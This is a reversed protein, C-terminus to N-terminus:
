VSRPDILLARDRMARGEDGRGDVLALFEGFHTLGPGNSPDLELGKRYDVEAQAEQTDIWHARVLYAEGLSPDLALAKDILTAAKEGLPGENMRSIDGDGRRWAASVQADALGVYAAAF